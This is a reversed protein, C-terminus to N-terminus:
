WGNRWVLETWLNSLSFIDITFFTGRSLLEAFWEPNIVPLANAWKNKLIENPSEDVEFSFSIQTKLNHYEM